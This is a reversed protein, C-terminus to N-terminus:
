RMPVQPSQLKSDCDRLSHPSREKRVFRLSKSVGYHYNRDYDENPISQSPEILHVVFM